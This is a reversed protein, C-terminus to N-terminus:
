TERAKNIFTFAPECYRGRQHAASHPLIRCDNHVHLSGCPGRRQRDCEIPNLCTGSARPTAGRRRPRNVICLRETIPNGSLFLCMIKYYKGIPQIWTRLGLTVEAASHRAAFISTSGIPAARRPMAAPPAVGGCTRSIRPVAGSLQAAHMTFRCPAAPITFRDKETRHDSSRTPGNVTVNLAKATTM